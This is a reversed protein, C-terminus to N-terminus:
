LKVGNSEVAKWTGDQQKVIKVKIGYEEMNDAKGMEVRWLGLATAEIGKQEQETPETDSFAYPLYLSRFQEQVKVSCAEYSPARKNSKVEYTNKDIKTLKREGVEKVNYKYVEDLVDKHRGQFLLRGFDSKYNDFYGQMAENVSKIEIAKHIQIGGIISVVAMVAIVGILVIKKM